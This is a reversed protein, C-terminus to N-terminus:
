PQLKISLNHRKLFDCFREMVYFQGLRASFRECLKPFADPSPNPKSLSTEAGVSNFERFSLRINEFFISFLIECYCVRNDVM